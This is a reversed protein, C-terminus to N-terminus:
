CRETLGAGGHSCGTRQDNPALRGPLPETRTPSSHRLPPRATSPSCHQGAPQPREDGARRGASGPRLPGAPFAPARRAMCESLLELTVHPREEAVVLSCTFRGVLQQETGTSWSLDVCRTLTRSDSAETWRRKPDMIADSILEFRHQPDVLAAGAVVDPANVSGVQDLQMPKRAFNGVKGAGIKLRIRM